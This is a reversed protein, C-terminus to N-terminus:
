ISVFRRRGGVLSSKKSAWSAAFVVDGIVELKSAGDSLSGDVNPHREHSLDVSNQRHLQNSGRNQARNREPTSTVLVPDLGM